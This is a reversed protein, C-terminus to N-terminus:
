RFPNKSKRIEIKNSIKKTLFEFINRYKEAGPSLYMKNIYKSMSQSYEIYMRKPAPAVKIEKDDPAVFRFIRCEQEEQYASHKVMFS